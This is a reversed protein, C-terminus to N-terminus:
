VWAKQRRNSDYLDSLNMGINTTAPVGVVLNFLNKVAHDLIAIIIAIDLSMGYITLVAALAGEYIGIGGPTLPVTKAMNAIAVGFIAVPVLVSAGVGICVTYCTLGDLLWIIISLIISSILLKKNSLIEYYGEYAEKTKGTMGKLIKSGLKIEVKEIFIKLTRNKDFSVISLPIVIIVICVFVSTWIWTPSNDGLFLIMAPVALIVLAMIDLIRTQVIIAASRGITIGKMKLYLIMAVDGLKAPLLVNLAYGSINLKFIEFKKIKKGADITFQELRLVRFIWSTANVLIMMMIWFPSISLLTKFLEEFGIYYLLALLIGIGVVFLILRKTWMKTKRQVRIDIRNTIKRVM